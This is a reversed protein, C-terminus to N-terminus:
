SAKSKGEGSRTGAFIEKSQIITIGHSRMGELAKEEDGPTLNVGKCADEIVYTKFNLANADLASFKVCYDTALGAIYVEDVSNSRLYDALGTSKLRANDFFTSYSDINKDTGKFFVAQIKQTELTEKFEAGPTNQECHPPWLIQPIGNLDVIEGAKKGKHNSAFSGHDKPHWDKTAVVLDFYNQLQNIIHVIKDGDKVPLAGGPCFDNQIDVLLLVKM